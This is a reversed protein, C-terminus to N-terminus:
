RRAGAGLPDISPHAAADGAKICLAFGCGIAGERAMGVGFSKWM